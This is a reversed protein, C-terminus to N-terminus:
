PEALININRINAKFAVDLILDIGPVLGVLWDITINAIMRTIPFIGIRLRIAQAVLYASIIATATDGVVPILGLIADYGFRINTGPLRFRQDFLHAIRNARRLAAAHDPHEAHLDTGAQPHPAARTVTQNAPTTHPLM